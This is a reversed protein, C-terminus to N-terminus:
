AFGLKKGWGCFANKASSWAGSIARGAEKAMNVAGSGIDLVADSITETLGKEEGFVKKTIKKCVFDLGASVVVGVGAVVVAPAGIGLAAAGAAVAAAIAADKAIDIGTEVVTEAVARGGTINGRKYEDYNSAANAALTLVWGAVTTGAKVGGTKIDDIGLEGLFSKGFTSSANGWRTGSNLVLHEYQTLGFVKRWGDAMDSIADNLNKISSNGGKLINFFDTASFGDGDIVVKAIESAVSLAGMGSGFSTLVDLGTKAATKGLGETWYSTRIKDWNTVKGDQAVNCITNETKEYQDAAKNLRDCMRRLTQRENAIQNSARTLRWRIGASAGSKFSIRGAEQMVASHIEQIQKILQEEEDATSRLNQVKVKFDSM